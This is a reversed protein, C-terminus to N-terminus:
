EPAGLTAMFFLMDRGEVLDQVAAEEQRYGELLEQDRRMEAKIKSNVEGRKQLERGLSRSLSALQHEVEEASRLSRTEVAALEAAQAEDALSWHQRVEDVRGELWAFDEDFQESDQQLKDLEESLARAMDEAAEEKATADGLRELVEAEARRWDGQRKARAVDRAAAEEQTEQVAGTLLDMQQDADHFEATLADVRAQEHLLQEHLREPSEASALAEAARREEDRKAAVSVQLEGRQRALLALQAESAKLLSPQVYRARLDAEAVEQQQQLGLQRAEVLGLHARREDLVQEAEQLEVQCRQAISRESALAAHLAAENSHCAEARARQWRLAQEEEEAAALVGDLAEKKARKANGLERRRAVFSQEAAAAAAAEESQRDKRQRKLEELDMARSAIETELQRRAFVM